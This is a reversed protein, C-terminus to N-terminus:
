LVFNSDPGFMIRYVAENCGGTNNQVFLYLLFFCFFFLAGEAHIDMNVKQKNVMFHMQM